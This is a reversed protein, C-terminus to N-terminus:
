KEQHIIPKNENQKPSLMERLEPQHPDRLVTHAETDPRHQVLFLVCAGHLSLLCEVWTGLREFEKGHSKIGKGDTIWAGWVTYM